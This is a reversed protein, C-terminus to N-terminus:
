NTKNKFFDFLLRVGVGSGNKPRYADPKDLFAPAAIDLHIWPYDTFKKLFMGATIAGANVGGINKVDAIDSKIYNDYEEWLPFEVLREYVRNGSEELDNNVKEKATSMYVIGEPGIARAAAGTLTALDIVLEPKYSKAYSLADALILRGEADTNLVEVTSGDHMKLVDGPVYANGGPRNETAPILGIVHLPLKAKAIAYISCAVAAAGAMDCKMADMSGPTPKLSLGGTDYVVGKGVLVYPNKNKAGRPKWELINFTPPNPSGLNVGLLGGMKLSQIKAKNFVEVSFGAEKGLKQIEKSLQEATLYSLPENVLDRAILTAEAVIEASKLKEIDAEGENIFITKLSNVGNKEGTKYKLFQYNGLLIGEAVYATVKKKGTLNLLSLEELKNQNCLAVVSCADKRWQENTKYGKDSDENFVVFLFKGAENLTIPKQKNKIAKKIFKLQEANLGARAFQTEKDALILLNSAPNIKKVLQISATSM